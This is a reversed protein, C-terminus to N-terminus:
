DEVTTAQACDALAHMAAAQTPDIVPLAVTAELRERHRALGACGLIIASAHDLDRLELAVELIREYAEPREGEAVTMHLPREGALKDTVGMATMYRMHREVSQPGLAIVGFRGGIGTAQRVASEQIGFVPKDSDARCERLGPDSYCAIVYADCDKRSNVLRRLPAVVADADAQTEVGFPGESLTACELVSGNEEGLGALTEAIGSTVAENSNPNIILIRPM